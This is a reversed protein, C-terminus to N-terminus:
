ASFPLTTGIKLAPLSPGIRRQTWEGNVNEKPFVIMFHIFYVRMYYTRIYLPPSVRSCVSVPWSDLGRFSTQWSQRSSTRGCVFRRCWRRGSRPFTTCPSSRRRGSPGTCWLTRRLISTGTRRGGRGRAGGEEGAGERARAKKGRPHLQQMGAPKERLAQRPGGMRLRDCARRKPPRAPRHRRNRPQCSTRHRRNTM